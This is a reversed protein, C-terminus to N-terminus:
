NDVHHGREKLVSEALRRIHDDAVDTLEPMGTSDPNLLYHSQSEKLGLVDSIVPDSGENAVLIYALLKQLLGDRHRRGICQSIVQPSWDLEGVVVSVNEVFQLGDMGAGARLSIIFVDLNGEIFAKRADDKQRDTQEGTYLASRLGWREFMAQWLKYCQHHWGFLLVREGSEHLLRVFEGVAGAKAIGTAQRLKWNLEGADHRRDQPTGVRALVRKALEAVDDRMKYVANADCEVEHRVITLDPLERGVDARTRRIMLGAERLYSGLAAPDRVKSKGSGDMQGGCWEDIFEKHTGLQGPAIVEMVNHIEEGYGYIPTATLGCRIDAEQAIAKGAKYKRSEDRRFEQAEDFVVLHVVGALSEVWGHLKSYSCIIVDPVGNHRVVKRRRTDPEVEVRVDSFAYPQTSRVRHVRLKPAFRHIERQWQISLHVPCVVLAPLSGPVSMVGIATATNHTLIAHDTAYLKDPADVSICVSKVDRVYEVSTVTRTPERFRTPSYKCAKRSVTFPSIGIPVRIRLPFETPKGEDSRDYEGISAVGGLQEVLQQVDEALGKSTTHYTVRNQTKSISGDGNMLGHLLDIRDAVPARLYVEPIRKFKSLVDMGLKRIRPMIGLIGSRTAGGRVSVSGIEVGRQELHIKVEPWDASNSIVYASSQTLSGNAILQGVLYAPLPLPSSAFVAPAGLMPLHLVTKSLDLSTPRHDPWERLLAPREQLEKTTLVLREWERGGRLHDVSWLHEPGAEVDSSDSFTVRYSPKVGQPFVGTVLAPKGSSGIVSDGVRLDGIQRYGCPTLVKADIPQQKGLGIQDAVLLSGTRIALDAAVRQYERLPLALEFERPIYGEADIEAIAALKREHDAILKRYQAESEPDVDMPHRESFWDLDYAHEPTAALLFVGAKYRQAGGFLRRLRISVHPPAEIVLQNDCITIRGHKV